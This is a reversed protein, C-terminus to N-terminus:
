KITLSFSILSILLLSGALIIKWSGKSDSSSQDIVEIKPENAFANLRGESENTVPM